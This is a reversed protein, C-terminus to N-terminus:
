TKPVLRFEVAEVRLARGVTGATQGDSVWPQWGVNQVHARYEIRFRAALEGTLTVEFAELRLARGQTGIEGADTWPQWGVNQVHGRWSLGGQYLTSSPSLRLAEVRLSQGTTGATAGDEVTPTWGLNQVHASYSASFVHEPPAGSKTLLRVQLAEIARSQGTTGASAGNSVWSQWGIGSVHARYSIDYSAALDGDLQLRVAELRLGKGTSGLPATSGWDASWGINQIHTKAFIGGGRGMPDIISLDVAELRLSRGTTGVIQGSTVPNMWGINQVHGRYGLTPVDGYAREMLLVRETLKTRLQTVEEGYSPAYRKGEVPNLLNLGGLIPWTEFNAAASETIATEYEATKAVLDGVISGVGSKWLENARQVFGPARVLDHYWANSPQLRHPARLLAANKVYESQTDAGLHESKDYNWLSSDFDWVPGAHLKDSPGDKYFYVSSAVIEPNQTLEHVFYFKVFSDVDILSTITDWDPSDSRLAHDLADISAQIDDWGAQTDAPLPDPLDPVGSKADKLTFLTSSAQSRHWHDEALGYNNDLEVLVGRSDSMEVRNSKVEVKESILYNGLYTGNVRLDVWRSAPSFPLGLAEALDYALKNRMLTADAHNALLVWTKASGMGLVDTSSPFKIQYPKKQLTWTFNGRGKFEGSAQPPLSHVGTPDTLGITATAENDKSEHVWSLTQGPETLTIDLTPLNSTVSAPAAEGSTAGAEPAPAAPTSPAPTPTTTTSPEPTPTITEAPQTTESPAPAESPPTTESPAPGPTQTQPVTGPTAPAPSNTSRSTESSPPSHEEAAVMPPAAILFATIVAITRLAAFTTLKQPM